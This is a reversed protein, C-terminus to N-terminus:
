RAVKILLLVENVEVVDFQVRGLVQGRATEVDVRWKGEPVDTKISYGRYGEKRGGAISYSFRGKSVWKGNERYQWNHVIDTALDGPAFIATYVAVTGGPAKHITQGPLIRELFSEQEVMINYDGNIRSITHGVVKDKLSLPIPPIVNLFYLANIFLFIIVIPKVFRKIDIRESKIYRSLLAIYIFIIFLSLAGALLFIWVGLRELVFPLIIAFVSFLLFFYISIQVRARLYYRRFVENSIMLIVILLIFPWSVYLSGSFFYFIFCASLLAGFSFQIALPSILRVYKLVRNKNDIVGVNYFNIFAIAAGVFLIHLGLIAFAYNIQISKFTIFDVIVGFVLTAPLLLREYKEYWLKIQTYLKKVM